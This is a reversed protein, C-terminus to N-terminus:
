LMYVHWQWTYIENVPKGEVCKQTEGLGPYPNRVDYTRIYKRTWHALTLSSKENQQYQISYNVMVAEAKKCLILVDKPIIINVEKWKVVLLLWIM